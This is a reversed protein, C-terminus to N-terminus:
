ANNVVNVFTNDTLWAAEMRIPKNVIGNSHKGLVCILIHLHDSYIRPLVQVMGEPFRTRWEFNSLNRDLRKKINALGFRGNSWTFKSRTYGLDVLNCQNIRDGFRRRQSGNNDAAISSSEDQNVTDNLDGVVM